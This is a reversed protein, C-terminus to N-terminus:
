KELTGCHLSLFQSICNPCIIQNNHYYLGISSFKNLSFIANCKKCEYSSFDPEMGPLLFDGDKEGSSDMVVEGDVKIVADVDVPVEKILIYIFYGVFGIAGIIFVVLFIIKSIDM